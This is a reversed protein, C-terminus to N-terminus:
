RMRKLYLRTAMMSIWPMNVDEYTSIDLGEAQGRVLEQAQYLNFGRDTFGKIADPDYEFAPKADPREGTKNPILNDAPETQDLLNSFDTGELLEGALTGELDKLEDNPKDTM